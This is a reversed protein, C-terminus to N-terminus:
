QYEGQAWADVLRSLAASVQAELEEEGMDDYSVSGDRLLRRLM